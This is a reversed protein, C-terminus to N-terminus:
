FISGAYIAKPYYELMSEWQVIFLDAFPYVLKGTLSKGQIRAFTEIYIVKAGRLKGMLCYPFAALAGTSIVVNPKEKRFTKFAQVFLKLFSPIFGKQKRNIQPVTYVTRGELEEAQGGAETVFFSEHADAVEMLCLLEAWHGGSSAVFAIRKNEKKKACM